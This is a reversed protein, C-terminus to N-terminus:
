YPSSVRELEARPSMEDQADEKGDVLQSLVASSGQNNTIASGIPEVLDYTRARYYCILVITVSLCLLNVLSSFLLAYGTGFELVQVMAYFVSLLSGGAWLM